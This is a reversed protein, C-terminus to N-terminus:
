GERVQEVVVTELQCSLTRRLWAEEARVDPYDPDRDGYVALVPVAM